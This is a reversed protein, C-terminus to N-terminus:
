NSIQLANGDWTTNYRQLYVGAPGQIVSGDTLLYKSGSCPDIMVINNSTDVECKCNKSPQYTSTREYAVFENVDKRYVVIGNVGGNITQWGSVANLKFYQPTSPYITINVAVYPIRDTPKGCSFWALGCITLFYRIIKIM